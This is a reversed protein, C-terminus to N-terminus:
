AHPLARVRELVGRVDDALIVALDNTELLSMARDVAELESHVVEIHNPSAGGERLGEIVLNATAGRERGRTDNDEKV